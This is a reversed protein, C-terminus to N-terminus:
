PRQLKRFEALIVVRAFPSFDDGLANRGVDSRRRRTESVFSTIRKHVEQRWGDPDIWFSFGFVHARDHEDSLVSAFSRRAAALFIHIRKQRQASSFIGGQGEILQM